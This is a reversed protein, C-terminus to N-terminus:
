IYDQEPVRYVVESYRLVFESELASPIWIRIRALHLESELHHSHAWSWVALWLNPDIDQNPLAYCRRPETMTPIVASSNGTLVVSSM